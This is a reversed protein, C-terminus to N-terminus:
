PVRRLKAKQEQFQDKAVGSGNEEPILIKKKASGMAHSLEWALARVRVVATVFM